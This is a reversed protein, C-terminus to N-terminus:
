SINKECIESIHCMDNRCYFRSINKKELSQYIEGEKEGEKARWYDKIYVIRNTEMDWGRMKWTTKAFLICVTYDLPYLILFYKYM